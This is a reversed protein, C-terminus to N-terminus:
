DHVAVPRLSCTLVLFVFFFTKDHQPGVARSNDAQRSSDQVRCFCFCFLFTSGKESAGGGGGGGGSGTSDGDNLLARALFVGAGGEGM